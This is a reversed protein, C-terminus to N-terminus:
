ANKVELLIENSSKMYKNGNKDKYIIEIPAFSYKGPGPTSAEISVDRSEGPKMEPISPLEKTVKFEHPMTTLFYINNVNYKSNNIIKANLLINGAQLAEKPQEAILEVEPKIDLRGM